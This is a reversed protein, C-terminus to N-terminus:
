FKGTEQNKINLTEDSKRRNLIKQIEDFSKGKTEPLVFLGFLFGLFCCFSFFWLCTYEGLIESLPEFSFQVGIALAQALFAVASVAVAKINMPYLEAAIVYHISIIGIAVFVEFLMLSTVPLWSIADINYSTADQLYFYLGLCFMSISCLLGSVMLLPRRGFRDVIQGSALASVFSIIGFIVSATNSSMSSGTAKIIPQMYSKIILNGCCMFILKLSIHIFLPKRYIKNTLLEYITGKNQMDREVSSSIDELEKELSSEDSADNALKQIVKKAEEKKGKKILHYPSEPIICTCIVPIISAGVSLLAFVKFSVYPGIIFGIDSGFLRLITMLFNLRGRNDNHSIEGLYVTGCNLSLGIAVGGLIRSGCLMEIGNAFYMLVWSILNCSGAAILAAKRGFIDMLWMTIISGLTAGVGAMSVVTSSQITDLKVGIPSDESRIQPLFTSSWSDHISTAAATTIACICYLYQRYRLNLLKNRLM